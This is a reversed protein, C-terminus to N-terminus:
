QLVPIGEEGMEEDPDDPNDVAENEPLVRDIALFEVLRRRVEGAVNALNRQRPDLQLQADVVDEAEDELAEQEM